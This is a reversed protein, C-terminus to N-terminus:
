FNYNVGISRHQNWRTSAIEYQFNHAVEFGFNRSYSYSIGMLFDTSIDYDNFSQQSGRFDYETKKYVLRGGAALFFRFLYVFSYVPMAALSYESRYVSFDATDSTLDPSLRLQILLSWPELKLTRRLNLELGLRSESDFDAQNLESFVVSSTVMWRGSEDALNYPLGFIQKSFMFCGFLLGLFLNKLM